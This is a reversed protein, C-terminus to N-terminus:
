GILVKKGQFAFGYCHIREKDIGRAILESEYKKDQIQKLASKVNMELDDEDSDQAELSVPQKM